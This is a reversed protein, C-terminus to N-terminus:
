SARRAQEDLLLMESRIEDIHARVRGLRRQLHRGLKEGRATAARQKETLTHEENQAAFLRKRAAQLTFGAPVVRGSPLYDSWEAPDRRAKTDASETESRARGTRAVRDRAGSELGMGSM